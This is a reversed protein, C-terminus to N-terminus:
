TNTLEFTLWKDISFQPYTTFHLAYSFFYFFAMYIRKLAQIGQYYYM